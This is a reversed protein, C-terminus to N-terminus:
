CVSFGAMEQRLDISQSPFRPRGDSRCPLRQFTPERRLEERGRIAGRRTELWETNSTLWPMWYFPHVMGQGKYSDLLPPFNLDLFYLDLGLNQKLWETLY